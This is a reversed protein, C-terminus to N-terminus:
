SSEVLPPKPPPAPPPLPVLLWFLLLLLLVVVVVLPLPLLLTVELIDLNPTPAMWAPKKMPFRILTSELVFTGVREERGGERRGERERIWIGAVVGRGGERGGKDTWLQGERRGQRVGESGGTALRGGSWSM